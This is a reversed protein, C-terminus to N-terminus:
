LDISWGFPVTGIIDGSIPTIRIRTPIASKMMSRLTVLWPRRVAPPM